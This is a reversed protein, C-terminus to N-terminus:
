VSKCFLIRWRDSILLFVINVDIYWLLKLSMSSPSQLLLHYISSFYRLVVTTTVGLLRLVVFSHLLHVM